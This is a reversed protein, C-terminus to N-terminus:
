SIALQHLAVLSFRSSSTDRSGLLSLVAGLQERDGVVERAEQDLEGIAQVVHARQFEHRV